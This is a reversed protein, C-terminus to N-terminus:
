LKCWVRKYAPFSKHSEIEAVARRLMIFLLLLNFTGIPFLSPAYSLLTRPGTHSLGHHVLGAQRERNSLSHPMFRGHCPLTLCEGLSRYPLHLCPYLPLCPSSLLISHFPFFPSHRKGEARQQHSSRYPLSHHCYLASHACSVGGCPSFLVCKLQLSLALM